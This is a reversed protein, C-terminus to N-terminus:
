PHFSLEVFLALHESNLVFMGQQGQKTFEMMTCLEYKRPYPAPKGCNESIESNAGSPDKIRVLVFDLLTGEFFHLAVIEACLM